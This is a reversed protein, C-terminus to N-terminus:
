LACCFAVCSALRLSWNGPLDELSLVGVRGERLREGMGVGLDGLVGLARWGGECFRLEVWAVLAWQNLVWM